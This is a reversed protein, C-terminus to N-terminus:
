YYPPPPPPYYHHKPEEIYHYCDFCIKPKKKFVLEFEPLKDKLLLWKLLLLKKLKLAKLLMVDAEAEPTLFIGALISAIVLMMILKKTKM